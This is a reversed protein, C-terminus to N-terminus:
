CIDKLKESTFKKNELAFLDPEKNKFTRESAYRKVFDIYEKPIMHLRLAHTIMGFINDAVYEESEKIILNFLDEM